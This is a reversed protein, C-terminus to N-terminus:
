SLTEADESARTFLFYASMVMMMGSLALVMSAAGQPGDVADKFAETLGIGFLLVSLILIAIWPIMIALRGSVPGMTRARGNVIKAKREGEAFMDAPDRGPDFMETDDILKRGNSAARSAPTRQTPADFAPLDEPIEPEATV